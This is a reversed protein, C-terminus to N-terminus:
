ALYGPASRKPIRMPSRAHPRIPRRLAAVVRHDAPLYAGQLLGNNGQLKIAGASLGLDDLCDDIGTKIAKQGHRGVQRCPQLKRESHGSEIFETVAARRLEVNM